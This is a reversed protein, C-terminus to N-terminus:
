LKGVIETIPNNQEFIYYSYLTRKNIAYEMSNMIYGMYKTFDSMVRVVQCGASNRGIKDPNPNFTPHLNCCFWGKYIKDKFKYNKDLRKVKQKKTGFGLRWGNILGTFKKAHLGVMWIRDQLGACMVATGNVNMPHQEIYYPSPDTTGRIVYIFNECLLGITDNFIGGKIKDFNRIAFPNYENFKYGEKGLFDYMYQIEPRSDIIM